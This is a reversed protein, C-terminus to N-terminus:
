PGVAIDSSGGASSDAGAGLRIRHRAKPARRVHIRASKQYADQRQDHKPQAAGKKDVAASRLVTGDARLGDPGFSLLAAEAPRNKRTAHHPFARFAGLRDLGFRPLAAEAPVGEIEVQLRLHEMKLFATADPPDDALDVITANMLAQFGAVAGDRFRELTVQLEVDEAAAPQATHEPRFERFLELAPDLRVQLRLAQLDIPADDFAEPLEAAIAPDDFHRFQIRGYNHLVGLVPLFVPMWCASREDAVFSDFCAEADQM